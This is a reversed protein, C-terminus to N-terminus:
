IFWVMTNNITKIVSYKGAKSFMIDDIEVNIIDSKSTLLLIPLGNKKLKVVNKKIDIDVVIGFYHTFWGHWIVVDGLTPKWKEISDYQALDVMIPHNRIM